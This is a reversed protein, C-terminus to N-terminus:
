PVHLRGLATALAVMAPRCPGQHGHRLQVLQKEPPASTDSGGAMKRIPGVAEPFVSRAM